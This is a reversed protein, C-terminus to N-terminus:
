RGGTLYRGPDSGARAGTDLWRSFGDPDRCEIEDLLGRRLHVLEARSAGIPLELLVFYTRQWALCLQATSLDAPAPVPSVTTEPSATPVPSGPGDTVLLARDPRVEDRHEQAVCLLHARVAPWPNTRLLDRRDAPGVSWAAVLAVAMVVLVAGSASGLLLILGALALLGGLVGAGVLLGGRWGARARSAADGPVNDRVWVGVLVGAVIGVVAGAFVIAPAVLVAVAGLLLGGALAANSLVRTFM